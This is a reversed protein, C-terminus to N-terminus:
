RPSRAGLTRRFSHSTAVLEYGLAHYFTHADTRVAKSYLFVSQYGRQVAWDEAAAMLIKGIGRGRQAADVIIAQAFSL